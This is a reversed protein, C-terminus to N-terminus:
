PRHSYASRIAAYDHADPTRSTVPTRMCSTTENRHDLGLAHGLEHCALHREKGSVTAKNLKVHASTFHVGSWSVQTWSGTGSLSQQSVKVQHPQNCGVIRLNIFVSANWSTIAARLPADWRSGVCDAVRLSRENTAGTAAWHVGGDNFHHAQAVTAWAFFCLTTALSRKM